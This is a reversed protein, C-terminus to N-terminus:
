RSARGTACGPTPHRMLNAVIGENDFLTDDVDLLSTASTPQTM